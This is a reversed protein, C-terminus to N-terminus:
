EVEEQWCYFVPFKDDFYEANEQNLLCEIAQNDFAMYSVFPKTELELFVKLFLKPDPQAKVLEYTSGAQKAVYISQILLLERLTVEHIKVRFLDNFKTQDNSDM